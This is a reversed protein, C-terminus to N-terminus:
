RDTPPATSHRVVLRCPLMVEGQPASEASDPIVGALVAGMALRGMEFLPLAMTTLPPVMTAALNRENDYGVVSVDGPVSLGLGSAALVAGIAARDNGALIATPRDAGQLVRQAAAYGPGIQFGGPVVWDERVPLGAEAMAERFGRERLLSAPSDLEGPLIAIERHGLEILHQAAARGGRVEDPLFQPLLEAGPPSDPSPYCNALAAPPGLFEELVRTEHLGVTLYILGDVSRDLLTRVAHEGHDEDHETDTAFTMFGHARAVEAAGAFIEGDFPSAVAQNSLIGIMGSRQNRLSRAVLNPSYGLEAAAERIREQTGRALYGDARNNFVLSVASRSVGALEAVNKATVKRAM